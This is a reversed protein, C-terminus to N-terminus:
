QLTLNSRFKNSKTHITLMRSYEKYKEYSKLLVIVPCFIDKASIYKIGKKILSFISNIRFLLGIIFVCPPIRACNTFFFDLHGCLFYVTVNCSFSNSGGHYFYKWLCFTYILIFFNIGHCFLLLSLFLILSNYMLSFRFLCIITGLFCCSRDM